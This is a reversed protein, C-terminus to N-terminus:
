KTEAEESKPKTEDTPAASAAPAPAGGPTGPLPGMKGSPNMLIDSPATPVTKAAPAQPSCGTLFFCASLISASGAVFLQRKMPPLFGTPPTVFLSCAFRFCLRKATVIITDSNIVM